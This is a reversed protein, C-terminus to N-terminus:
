AARGVVSHAYGLDGNSYDRVCEEGQRVALCRQCRCVVTVLDPAAVIVAILNVRKNWYDARLNQEEFVPTKVQCTTLLLRKNEVARDLVIALVRSPYCSTGNRRQTRLVTVLLAAWVVRKDCM